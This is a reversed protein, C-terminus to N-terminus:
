VACTISDVELQYRNGVSTLSRRAPRNLPSQKAGSRRGRRSTRKMHSCCARSCTADPVPSEAMWGITERDHAAFSVDSFDAVRDDSLAFGQQVENFEIHQLM